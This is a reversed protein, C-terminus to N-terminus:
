PRRRPSRRAPSSTRRLALVIAPRAHPRGCRQPPRRPPPRGGREPLRRTRRCAGGGCRRAGGRPAGPVARRDGAGGGRGAQARAGRREPPARHPVPAARGRALLDRRRAGAVLVPGPLDRRGRPARWRPDPAGRGRPGPAAGRARGRPAGRLRGGSGPREACLAPQHGRAPRRRRPPHVDHHALGAVASVAGRRWLRPRGAGHLRHRRGAGRAGRLPAPALPRRPRRHAGGAVPPRRRAGVACLAARPQRDRRPERGGRPPHSRGRPRAGDRARRPVRRRPRRERRGAGPRPEEARRECRPPRAALGLARALAAHHRGLVVGGSTRTRLAHRSRGGVALRRPRDARRRERARRALALGARPPSGPEVTISPLEDGRADAGGEDGPLRLPGRRPRSWM